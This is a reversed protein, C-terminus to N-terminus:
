KGFDQIRGQVNYTVGMKLYVVIVLFITFPIQLRSFCGFLLNTMCINMWRKGRIKQLKPDMFLPPPSDQGM